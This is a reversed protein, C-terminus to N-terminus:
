QQPVPVTSTEPATRIIPNLQVNQATVSGDSNQQGFVAVSTGITLASKDVQEAKNIQTTDSLLVIKSSGDTLKVTISKDDSGIVEGTVPRFGSRAGGGTTGGQRTFEGGTGGGFTGRFNGGGFQSNAFTVRKSQQYKMGAFFGGGVGIVLAIVAVIILNQQAKM